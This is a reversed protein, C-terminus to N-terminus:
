YSFDLLRHLREALDHFLEALNRRSAIIRSVENLTRYPEAAEAPMNVVANAAVGSTLDSNTHAGAVEDMPLPPPRRAHAAPAGLTNFGCGLNHGGSIITAM